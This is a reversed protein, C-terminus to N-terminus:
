EGGRWEELEDPYMRGIVRAVWDQAPREPLEILWESVDQAEEPSPAPCDVVVMVPRACGVSWVSLVVACYLVPRWRPRPRHARRRWKLRHKM